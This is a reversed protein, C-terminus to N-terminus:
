NSKRGGFPEQRRKADAEVIAAAEQRTAEYAALRKSRDEATEGPKRKLRARLADPDAARRITTFASKLRKEEEAQLMAAAADPDASHTVWLRRVEALRREGDPKTAASDLVSDGPMYPEYKGAIVAAADDKSLGRAKLTAVAQEETVGQRMAKWVIKHMAQFNRKRAIDTREYAAALQENSVQGANQVTASFIKNSDAMAESHAAAKFGLSQDIDVTSVRAGTLMAFLEVDADFAKGQESVEGTVGKKVRGLSEVVGPVLPGIMHKFIAAAKTARDDQVNYVEKGDATRGGRFTLDTLREAFLQESIYPAALEKIAALMASEVDDGRMAAVATKRLYAYPNSYSIDVYKKVLRGNKVIDGLRIIDSNQSWPAIFERFEEDDDDSIGKAFMWTLAATPVNLMTATIGAFRTAGILRTRPDKLEIMALEITKLSVRVIESAWSFFNGIPVHRLAQVGKPIKSYTPMTNRVIDAAHKDLQESTWSPFAKAYRARENGWAYIKWLADSAQYVDAAAEGGNRIMQMVRNNFIKSSHEINADALLRKLEGVAVDEGIVGNKVLRLHLDRWGTYNAGSAKAITAMGFDTFPLTIGELAPLTGRIADGVKNIRWHGNAIAFGVNSLLNRLQTVSSGVTKMAKALSNPAILLVRVWPSIESRAFENEFAKKVEPYTRLGNLPSMVDSAEAAIVASAAPDIDPDNQDFLWKGLGADRAESLFRQGALLKTMKAVSTAYNIMPNQEEGWLERLELPLAERKKLVDMLKSGLKGRAVVAMPSEAAKGAYLLENIQQNVQKETLHPLQGRLWDYARSRVAPDVRDAWKPDSFVRYTRTLYVGMNQTITAELAQTAIGSQIIMKSLNDIHSRMRWVPDRLVEPLLMPNGGRLVRNVDNWQKDDLRGVKGYVKKMAVRLDNMVFGLAREHSSLFQDMNEKLRYAQKPLDGASTFLWRALSGLKGGKPMEYASFLPSGKEVDMLDADSLGARVGALSGLREEETLSKGLAYIPGDVQPDGVFAYDIPLLSAKQRAFPRDKIAVRPDLDKRFNVWSNQGRTEMTLAWRAWPDPTMAMHNRWAAEEGKPGFEVPAVGHAFYDHVARFLDNYLMPVGNVDKFPTEGLLPHERFSVGPPGFTEPTTAYIYLHNNDLLDARMADSNAYPEGKTVDWVEVKVPLAGFQRLVEKALHEYAKKVVPNKLDLDPLIEYVSAISTQLKRQNDAIQGVAQEFARAPSGNLYAAVRRATEVFVKRDAEREASVNGDDQGWGIGGKGDGYPWLRATESKISGVTRQGLAADAKVIADFYAQQEEDTGQDKVYYSTVTKDTFTLGALGSAEIVGDIDAKTLAQDLNWTHVATVYSGDEYTTGLEDTTSQRLHVQEQNFNKAFRRIGALVIREYKRDFEIKLGVSPEVFGGFLGTANVRQLRIGGPREASKLNAKFLHALNDYAVNQLLQHAEQDGDSALRTLRDLGPITGTSSSLNIKFQEPDASFLTAVKAAEEEATKFVDPNVIRRYAEAPAETQRQGHRIINSGDSGRRQSKGQRSSGAGEADVRLRVHQFDGERNGYEAAITRAADAYDIEEDNGKVGLKAWLRKEHYWLMAQFDAPEIRQATPFEQVVRTNFIDIARTAVERQVNRDTSNMPTEYLGFLNGVIAKAAKFEETSVEARDILAKAAADRIQGVTLKGLKVRAQLDKDDLLEGELKSSREAQEENSLADLDEETSEEIEGKKEKKKKIEKPDVGSEILLNRRIVSTATATFVSGNRSALAVSYDVAMKLPSNAATFNLRAIQEPTMTALAAIKELDFDVQKTEIQGDIGVVPKRDKLKPVSRKLNFRKATKMMDAANALVPALREAINAKALDENREFLMNRLRGFTRTWWIDMTLTDFRGQLNNFFSGIKPGLLMAGYVETDMSEGSVKFGREALEGVTFKSSLMEEVVDYGHKEAMRQILQLNTAVTKRHSSGTLKGGNVWKIYSIAANRFNPEVKQGDSWIALSVTFMFRHLPDENPGYVKPFIEGIATLAAKMKEGYWGIGSRDSSRYTDLAENGMNQAFREKDAATEQGPLVTPVGAESGEKLLMRAGDRKSVVKAKKRSESRESLDVVGAQVFESFPIKQTSDGGFRNLLKRAIRMTASYEPREASFLPMGRLADSKMEPTIPLSHVEVPDPVALSKAYLDAADETNFIGKTQWKGDELVQTSWREGEQVVRRATAKSASVKSTGVKVGWKKAFKNVAAPLMEDYFATMGHGGLRLDEGEFKRWDRYGSEKTPTGEGAIIKKTIDKGVMMQVDDISLDERYIPPSNLNGVPDASINYTGDDNKEWSISKVQNALNYRDAQKAGPLWGISDLGKEAAMRIMRKIALVPWSTKFPADPVQGAKSQVTDVARKLADEAFEYDERPLGTIWRGSGDRVEWIPGSAPDGKGPKVTWKSTDIQTDGKYGKDRGAQHWDSQVEEIFLMSKGDTTKRENTRTHALINPENFHSSTFRDAKKVTPKGADLIFDPGLQGHYLRQSFEPTRGPYKAAYEEVTIGEKAALRKVAEEAPIMPIPPTVQDAVPLTLLNEQYNTGGPLQWQSYQTSDKPKNMSRVNLDALDMKEEDTLEDGQDRRYALTKRRRQEADTLPLPAALTVDQVDVTNNRLFEEVESKTVSKKGKLFDDLGIWKAEEATGKTKTLHAMLQDPTGKGQWSTLASAINSLWIPASKGPDAASFLINTNNPDFTGLNSTASKIQTPKFAVWAVGKKREGEVAPEEIIAGDYGLDQLDKVFQEGQDEDFMEWAETMRLWKESYGKEDILRRDTEGIAKTLDAPNKISLYAPMVNKGFSESTEKDPSFFFGSRKVDYSGFLVSVKGGVNKFENFSSDTGHYVVLPKGDKDVVKSNGFWKKFAPTETKPDAASFAPQSYRTMAEATTRDARGAPTERGFVEGSSFRQQVARAKAGTTELFFSVIKDALAVFKKWAASTQHWAEFNRAIAEEAEVETMDKTAYRNKLASWEADSFLGLARAAHLLEHPTTTSRAMAENITLLVDVGLEQGIGADDGIQMVGLADANAFEDDTLRRGLSAEYNSKVQAWERTGRTLGRAFKISKKLLLGIKKGSPLILTVGAGDDHVFYEAGGLMRAVEGLIKALRPSLSKRKGLQVDQQPAVSPKPKRGGFSRDEVPAPAAEAEPEVATTMESPLGTPLGIDGVPVSETGNRQADRQATENTQGSDPRLSAEGRQAVNSEPQAAERKWATKAKRGSGTDLQSVDELPIEFVGESTEGNATKTGRVLLVPKGDQDIVQASGVGKKNGVFSVTSGDTLTVRGPKGLLKSDPGIPAGGKPRQDYGAVYDEDLTPDVDPEAETKAAPKAAQPNILGMLSGTWPDEAAEREARGKAIRAEEAQNAAVQAPDEGTFAAERAERAARNSRALNERSPITRVAEDQDIKTLKGNRKVAYFNDGTHDVEVRSGDKLVLTDGRRPQIGEPPRVVMPASAEEAAAQPEVAADAAAPAEPEVAPAQAEPNRGLGSGNLTRAVMKGFRTRQEADGPKLGADLMMRRSIPKGEEALKAIEWAKGGDGSNDAIWRRANAGRAHVDEASQGSLVKTASRARGPAEMMGMTAATQLFTDKFTEVLDSPALGASRSQLESLTAITLEEVQEATFNKLTKTTSHQLFDKLGQKTVMSELGGAGVLQMAATVGGEILAQKAAYDKAEEPKMGSDIGRTFAESGASGAFGAIVAPSIATTGAAFSGGAALGGVGFGAAAGIGMQTASRVVGRAIRSAGKFGPTAQQDALQERADNLRNSADATGEEVAGVAELGRAALGGVAQVGQAFGGNGMPVHDSISRLVNDQEQKALIYEGKVPDLDYYDGYETADKQGKPRIRQEEPVSPDYIPAGRAAKRLGLRVAEKDNIWHRAGFGGNSPIVENFLREAEDRDKLSAALEEQTYENGIAKIKNLPGPLKSRSIRNSLAQMREYADMAQKYKEPSRSKMLDRTKPSRMVDDITMKPKTPQAAVRKKIPVIKPAPAAHMVEANARWGTKAPPKIVEANAKWGTQQPPSAAKTGVDGGVPAPPPILEAKDRWGM